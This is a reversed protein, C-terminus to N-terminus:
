FGIAEASQVNQVLHQLDLTGVLLSGVAPNSLVFGIAVAPALRGSALGKKVVVGVGQRRAEEMVAAHSTDNVHYEVMVVDAWTLALRSAAPTKGSFGIAKVLGEDRVAHLTAVVDTEELIAVDDGHAHVFVVELGDTHLRRLSRVISERVGKASFDYSSRGDSFTEGAKTSLVYESRRYGISKGIWEESLGYAPATDIYNVGADLVGNLLREVEHSDPLAYDSPYKIGQNRWIKFAGFGIPTVEIGTQGLPRRDM